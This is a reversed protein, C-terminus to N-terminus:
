HCRLILPLLYPAWTWGTASHERRRYGCTGERTSCAKQMEMLWQPTGRTATGLKKSGQDSGQKAELIFCGQKHLDIKGIHPSGGEHWLRADAEFVYRDKEPDSTTPNRGRCASPTM